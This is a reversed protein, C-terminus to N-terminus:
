LSFTKWQNELWIALPWPWVALNIKPKDVWYRLFPDKIKGEFWDYSDWSCRIQKQDYRLILMVQGM